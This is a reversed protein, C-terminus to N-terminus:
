PAGAGHQLISTDEAKLHAPQNQQSTPSWLSLDRNQDRICWPYRRISRTVLFDIEALDEGVHGDGDVLSVVIDPEDTKHLIIQTVEIQLGSDQFREFGM